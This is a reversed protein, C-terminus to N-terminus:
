DLEEGLLAPLISLLDGFGGSPDGPQPSPLLDAMMRSADTDNSALHEAAYAKTLLSEMLKEDITGRAVFFLAEVERHPCNSRRVRTKAQNITSPNWHLDVFAVCSAAALPNLSMGASGLTAVYVAQGPHSWFVDAFAVRQKHSMKGDVPGLVLTDDVYLKLQEYLYEATKIRSSFVVIKDHKDLTQELYPAAYKAKAMSILNVLETIARVEASVAGREGTRVAKRDIIPVGDVSVAGVETQQRQSIYGLVDPSAKRYEALAEADLDVYVPTHTLAPLGNPVEEAVYRLFTGALRRRLEVENTPADYVYYGADDDDPEKDSRMEIHGGMYRMGFKHPHNEWQQPQSRFLM